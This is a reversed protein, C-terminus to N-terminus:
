VDGEVFFDEDVSILHVTRDVQVGVGYRIMLQSLRQGDILVIRTPVGEAYQKAGASFRGTTIFVGRDAQAGHLAGVFAQIEPRQVAADLAYRKAQIYVRNLGLADQDVIGDIGRDNTLQTRTARGNKGGYGMAVILKVVADEFFEWENEHLRKLLEAGVNAEIISIGEEIMEVPSQPEGTSGEQKNSAALTNGDAGHAVYTPQAELDAKTLGEPHASLLNRGVQTIRYHGRSPREVADTRYLYSLAWFSRNQYRLQGSPITGQRAEPSINLMDAASDAVHRARHVQGDALVRLAPIMFEEWTPVDSM